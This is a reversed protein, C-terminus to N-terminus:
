LSAKPHKLHAEQFGELVTAAHWLLELIYCPEGVLMIGFVCKYQMGPTPDVWERPGCRHWVEGIFHM